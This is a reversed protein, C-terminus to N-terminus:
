GGPWSVSLVLEPGGARDHVIGEAELAHMVPAAGAIGERLGDDILHWADDRSTFRGLYNFGIDPTPLEALAEATEENLYRLLG